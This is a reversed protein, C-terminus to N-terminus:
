VNGRFKLGQCELITYHILEKIINKCLIQLVQEEDRLIFSKSNIKPLYFAQVCSVIVSLVVISRM